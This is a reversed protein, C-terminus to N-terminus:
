WWTNSPMVLLGVMVVTNPKLHELEHRCHVILLQNKRKRVRRWLCSTAVKTFVKHMSSYTDWTLGPYKYWELNDYILPLPSPPLLHYLTAVVNGFAEQVYPEGEWYFEIPYLCDYPIQHGGTWACPQVLSILSWIQLDLWGLCYIPENINSQFLLKGLESNPFWM